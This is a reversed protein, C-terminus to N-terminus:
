KPDQLSSFFASGYSALSSWGEKVTQALKDFDEKATAAINVAFDSAESGGGGGGGGSPTNTFGEDREYFDASSISSSGAFKALRAATEPDTQEKRGFYDDSSIAKSSAFRSEEQKKTEAEPKRKLRFGEDSFMIEPKKEEPKPKPKSYGGFEDDEQYTLRSSGSSSASQGSGSSVPGKNRSYISEEEQKEQEPEKTDDGNDDDDDDDDWNDFASAKAVAGLKGKKKAEVKGFELVRPGDSQKMETRLNESVNSTASPGEKKSDAEAQNARPKAYSSALFSDSSKEGGEALDAIEKRYLQAPRSEYKVSLMAKDVQGNSDFGHKRFFARARQNGGVRMNTLQRESWTDLGTSRM